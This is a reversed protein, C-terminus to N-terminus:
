PTGWHSGTNLRVNAGAAQMSQGQLVLGPALGINIDAKMEAPKEPQSKNGYESLAQTLIGGLGGIAAGITTGLVPVLSGVTAGLGAGSLAASGYRAAVSEEGYLSSLTAGGISAALGFMGAGKPVVPLRSAAGSLTTIGPISSLLRIGSASGALAKLGQSAAISAPIGLGLATATIAGTGLGPNKEFVPQAGSLTNNLGDAITKTAEGLPKAMTAKLNEWTGSLADEKSKLTGTKKVIRDGMDAQQEQKQLSERFGILGGKEIMIAAPRSAEVGFMKNLVRMRDVDKLPKLKDLESFMNEIGAFKGNKDFFNMKIGYENLVDRVEKAEKGRGAVRSDIQATRQLMMAFNTGFSTNELGVSAAMGQVALLEKAKDIGTLGLTNYTPAAYAAVAQFDEAKIGYAYKAKQMLNAMEPLEKDGLGYAERMKAITTASQYQDMNALVGFYAAAKLGGGTIASDTMGQEKLATAAAVFDKTAGPLKNGLDTAQRMIEDYASSVKGGKQMLAMQLDAQASEVDAYSRIPNALVSKTVVAGTAVAAGTQLYQGARQMKTLEGMENRLERIKQKQADYARGMERASLTGANALTQYAQRTKNIEDRVVQESRIGLRERATSMDRYIKTHHDHQAQVAKVSQSASATAAAAAKAASAEAQKEVAKLGSTAGADRFRLVLEASTNGM